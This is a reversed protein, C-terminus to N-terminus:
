FIGRFRPFVAILLLMFSMDLNYGKRTKKLTAGFTRNTHKRSTPRFHSDQVFLPVKEGNTTMQPPKATKQWM